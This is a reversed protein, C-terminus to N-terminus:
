RLFEVPLAHVVFQAYALAAEVIGRNASQLFVPLTLFLEGHKEEGIEDALKDAGVDIARVWV